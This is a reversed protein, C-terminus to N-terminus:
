IQPPVPGGLNNDYQMLHRCAALLTSKPFHPAQPRKPNCM